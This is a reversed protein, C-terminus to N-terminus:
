GQFERGAGPPAPEEQAAVEVLFPREQFPWVRPLEPPALEQVARIRAWVRTFWSRAATSSAGRYRAVLGQELAGCTM